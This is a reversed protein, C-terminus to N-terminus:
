GCRTAEVRGNDFVEITYRPITDGDPLPEFLESYAIYEIVGLKYIGGAGIM